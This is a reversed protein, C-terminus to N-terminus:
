KKLVARMNIVWQAQAKADDIARHALEPKPREATPAFDALTHTDRENVFSWPTQMGCAHSAARLIALDFSSGHGWAKMGHSGKDLLFDRLYHLVVPLVDIREPSVLASRAGDSQRLWWNLTSGSVHLGAGTCSDLDVGYDFEPGLGEDNFLVCGIQLIACGPETGMTELDIMADTYDM